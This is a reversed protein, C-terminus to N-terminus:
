IMPKSGTVAITAGSVYRSMPEALMVHTSALAVPQAPRKMPDNAGFQSVKEGDFSGPLEQTQEPFPPRPYSPADRNPGQAQTRGGGAGPQKMADEAPPNVDARHKGAPDIQQQRQDIVDPAPHRLKENAATDPDDSPPSM